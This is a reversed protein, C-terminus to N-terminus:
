ASTSECCRNCLAKIQATTQEVQVKTNIVTKGTGGYTFIAGGASLDAVESMNECVFDRRIPYPTLTKNNRKIVTLRAISAM